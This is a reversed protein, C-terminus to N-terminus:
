VRFMRLAEDVDAGGTLRLFIEQLRGSGNDGVQKQLEELTGLAVIQGKHLIAIRDCLQEAVDLTHTSLFVSNQNSSGVRRFISKVMEAGRPDLGVMPEDVIVLQPHHLLAAAMTLRQKMGHSYSEVLENAWQELGFLDLLEDARKHKEQNSMGYIGGIFLMFEKGSLKEYIFPRDPIYGILQKALIPKKSVDVGGIWVNGSTPKVLGMMMKMTTTKGAGNPGLFGFVEGHRVHLCLDRVAYFNGFRKSLHEIKIMSTEQPQFM